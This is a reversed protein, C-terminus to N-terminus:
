RHGTRGSIVRICEYAGIDPLRIVPNGLIDRVPGQVMVAGADVAPSEPQLMRASPMRSPRVGAGGCVRETNRAFLPDTNLSAGDQGSAARYAAFDGYTVGGFRFSAQGNRNFYLNNDFTFGESQANLMTGAPSDTVILNNRFLCLNATGAKPTGEPWVEPYYASISIGTTGVTGFDDCFAPAPAAPNWVLTNNYIQAGYISGNYPEGWWRAGDYCNISIDGTGVFETTSGNGRANNELLNYRIVSGMNAYFAVPLWDSEYGSYLLIGYAQNDHAYCYQVTCNRCGTDLDFGGGDIGPSKQNYVECSEIVSNECTYFWIGSPTGASVPTETSGCDHAVCGRILSDNAYMVVIGNGRTRAVTSDEIRIDGGRNAADEGWGAASVIIGGFGGIDEVICREVRIASAKSNWLVNGTDLGDLERYAWMACVVIGGKQVDAPSLVQGDIGRVRCNRITIDSISGNDSGVGAFIGFTKAGTVELDAIEVHSRDVALIGAQHSEVEATDPIDSADIVPRANGRGYAGYRVAGAEASGSQGIVLSGRFTRGRAFLVADGPNLVISNVKDLTKWATRASTGANGDDGGHADVYYTAHNGSHGGDQAFSRTETAGGAVSLCLAISLVLVMGSKVRIM